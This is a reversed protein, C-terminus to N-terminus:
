HCKAHAIFHPSVIIANDIGYDFTLSVTPSIACRCLFRSVPIFSYKDVAEFLTCVLQVPSHFHFPQLHDQYWKVKAFLHKKGGSNNVFIPTHYFFLEVIGVKIPCHLTNRALDGWYAMVAASRQSHSHVSLFQEGLTKLAYFAFYIRPVRM